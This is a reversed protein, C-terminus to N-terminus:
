EFFVKLYKKADNCNKWMYDRPTIINRHYKNKKLDAISYQDINSILHRAVTGMWRDNSLFLVEDEPYAMAFVIASALIM